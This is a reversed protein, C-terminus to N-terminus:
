INEINKFTLLKVANAIRGTKEAPNYKTKV